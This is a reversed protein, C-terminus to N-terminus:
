FGGTLIYKVAKVIEFVSFKLVKRSVGSVEYVRMRFAGKYKKQFGSM